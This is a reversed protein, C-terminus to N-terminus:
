ANPLSKDTTMYSDFPDVERRVRKVLYGHEVLEAVLALMEPRDTAYIAHPANQKDRAEHLKAILTLAEPSM